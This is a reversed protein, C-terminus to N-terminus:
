NFLSCKFRETSILYEITSIIILRNISSHYNQNGYLLTQTLQTESQSLVNDGINRIKQFLTQRAIFFNTCHLFIHMKSEIDKDCECLPNSTDLFHHRFKHEHLHRLGLRLRTLLKIGLPNHIDFVSKAYPRTFNLLKKKFTNLSASNRIKFNLM